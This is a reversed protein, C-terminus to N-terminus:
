PTDSVVAPGRGESYDLCSNYRSLRLEWVLCLDCLYDTSGGYRLPFKNHRLTIVQFLFYYNLNYGSLMNKAM